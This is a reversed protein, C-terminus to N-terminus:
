RGMSEWTIPEDWPNQSEMYGGTPREPLLNGYEDFDRRLEQQEQYGENKDRYETAM